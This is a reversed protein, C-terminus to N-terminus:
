TTHLSAHCLPAGGTKAVFLYEDDSAKRVGFTVNDGCHVERRFNIDIRTFLGNSLVDGPLLNYFMEIYHTNNLHGNFDCESYGVEKDRTIDPLFDAIRRPSRCPVPLDVDALGLDPFIPKRTDIDIVCWETTARGIEEGESDTLMVCRNYTLGKGKVPWVKINYNDYLLPREDIEFASRLLVWSRGANRMVDIGCGEERINRGIANIISGCIFPVTAHGQFDVNEPAASYEFTNVIRNMPKFLKNNDWAQYSM